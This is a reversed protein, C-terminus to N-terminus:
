SSFIRVISSKFFSCTSFELGVEIYQVGHQCSQRREINIYMFSLPFSCQRNVKDEFLLSLSAPLFTLLFWYILISFRRCKASRILRISIFNNAPWGCQLLAYFNCWKPATYPPISVDFKVFYLIKELRVTSCMSKMQNTHPWRRPQSRRDLILWFHNNAFNPLVITDFYSFFLM